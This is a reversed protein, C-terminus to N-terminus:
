PMNTLKSQSVFPYLFCAHICVQIWSSFRDDLHAEVVSHNHLFAKLDLYREGWTDKMDGMRTRKEDRELRPGGDGAHACDCPMEPLSGKSHKQIENAGHKTHKKTEIAAHKTDCCRMVKRDRKDATSRKSTTSTKSAREMESDDEVEIQHLM